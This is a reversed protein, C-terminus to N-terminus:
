ARASGSARSFISRIGPHQGGNTLRYTISTDAAVVRAGEPAISDVVASGHELIKPRWSKLAFSWRQYHRFM